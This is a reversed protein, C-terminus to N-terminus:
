RATNGLAAVVRQLRERAEHMLGQMAPDGEMGGARLMAEPDAVRVVSRDSGASEVTVNCPLLLGVESRASLARHALGPNCAGLIAYPRFKVGLKQELVRDADIRTLVGFGEAALAATSREIALPQPIPLEVTFGLSSPEAAPHAAPGGGSPAPVRHEM